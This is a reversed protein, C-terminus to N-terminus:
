KGEKIKMLFFALIEEPYKEHHYCIAKMMQYAEEGTCICLYSIDHKIKELLNLMLIHSDLNFTWTKNQKNFIIEKSDIALIADNDLAKLLSDQCAMIRMTLAEILCERYKKITEHIRIFKTEVNSLMNRKIFSLHGGQLLPIIIAEQNRYTKM